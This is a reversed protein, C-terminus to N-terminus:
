RARVAVAQLGCSAHAGDTEARAVVNASDPNSVANSEMLSGQADQEGGTSSLDFINSNPPATIQHPNNFSDIIAAAISNSSSNNKVVMLATGGIQVCQSTFSFGGFSFASQCGPDTSNVCNTAAWHWAKVNSSPLFATSDLGDVKDANLNSVKAGSNVTLPAHGAAVNLGLATAGAHTNTNTVQLGKGVVPASLSTPNSASNSKGLIFNGGTAAYTTGGLAVFLALTAVVNGYTIRPRLKSGM